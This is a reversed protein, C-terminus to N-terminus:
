SAAAVAVDINYRRVAANAFNTFGGYGAYPGGDQTQM